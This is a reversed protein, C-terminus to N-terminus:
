VDDGSPTSMFRPMVERGFLEFSRRADDFGIDYFNTQVSAVEFGGVADSYEKIQASITDPDGCWVAGTEVQGEFTEHRLRKIMDGYGPYDTSTTGDAWDSAGDALVQLFRNMPERAIERARAADEHCFMHFALMVQGDGSHGADRYANRYLEILGGLKAGGLPIAMISHGREGARVFSEPTAICAVWFPPRPQQVPRPLISTEPFQHFRGEFSVSEEELLRTIVDIGEDFRARSEDMDVGFRSFEHPLFARAFGIEARGGSLCDLLAIESALKLPHNFAPLVAGTILRMTRTRQAAAALFMLPSPSYGGYPHFYHEVTRAHTYGLPEAVEILDLAERWYQEGSKLEPSAAPFFHVGFEM